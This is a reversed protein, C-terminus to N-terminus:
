ISKLCRRFTVKIKGGRWAPPTHAPCLQCSHTLHKRILTPPEFHSSQRLWHCASTCSGWSWLRCRCCGKYSSAWDSSLLRWVCVCLTVVCWRKVMVMLNLIKNGLLFSLLLLREFEHIHTHTRTHRYTLAHCLASTVTIDAAVSNILNQRKFFINRSPFFSQYDCTASTLEQKLGM